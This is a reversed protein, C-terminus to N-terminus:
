IRRYSFIRKVLTSFTFHKEKIKLRNEGKSHFDLTEIRKIGEEHSVHTSLVSDHFCAILSLTAPFTEVGYLTILVQYFMILSKRLGRSGCFCLIKM